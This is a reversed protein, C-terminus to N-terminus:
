FKINLQKQNKLLYELVYKMKSEAKINDHFVLISNSKIASITKKLCKEKSLSEDFDGTLVSWMMIKYGALQIDKMSRISLNGYPPRFLKSKIYLSAEEINKLYTFKDTKWVNLHNMTHNGVDHGDEIIRKYLLPYKKVNDGVCFFVAKVNYKKLIDLIYLTLESTPGDDFTLLVKNENNDWQLSPFLTRFMKPTKFLYM